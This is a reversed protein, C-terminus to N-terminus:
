TIKIDSFNITNLLSFINTQGSINQIYNQAQEYLKTKQELSAFTGIHKHVTLRGYRKSVVQIARKGSGTKIERIRM